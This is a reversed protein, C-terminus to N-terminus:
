LAMSSFTSNDPLEESKRCFRIDMFVAAQLDPLDAQFYLWGAHSIIEAFVRPNKYLTAATSADM